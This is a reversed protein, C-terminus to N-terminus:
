SLKSCITTERGTCFTLFIKGLLLLEIKAMKLLIKLLKLFQEKCYDEEHKYRAKFLMMKVM